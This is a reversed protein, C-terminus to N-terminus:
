VGAGSHVSKLSVPRPDIPALCRDEGRGTHRQGGFCAGLGSPPEAEPPGPPRVTAQVCARLAWGGARTRRPPPASAEPTLSTGPQLVGRQFHCVFLM